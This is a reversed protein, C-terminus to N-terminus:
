FMQKYFERLGKLTLSIHRTSNKQKALWSNDDWKRVYCLQLMEQTDSVGFINYMSDVETTGGFFNEYAVKVFKFSDVPIEPNIREAIYEHNEDYQKKFYEFVTMTSGGGENFGNNEKIYTYVLIHYFDIRLTGM